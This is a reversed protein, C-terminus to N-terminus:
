LDDQNDIDLRAKEQEKPDMTTWEDPGDQESKGRVREVVNGVGISVAQAILRNFARRTEPDVDKRGGMMKRLSKFKENLIDSMKTANTNDAMRFLADVFAARQEPTSNTLCEHFTECVVGATKDIAPLEEFHGGYVQWTLPDHQELGKATSRVVTYPKYYEMLLGIVSSQPIYSHIKERIREFGESRAMEMNMGPGDYSWISEIRAQVDPTVTAAAYVALNGGKSHGVLRLPRSNLAAARQLYYGAAEQGPVRTQFSMNFDERWGVLTNDTGRFAVAMTGDPMDLCMASFQMSMEEDTLSIFHHMRCSSFRVSDAMRHFAERRPPFSEDPNDILLDIRKAEELTWGRADQVGHFNLYSLTAALLGDIANWPSAELSFEGRWAMYDLMNAM